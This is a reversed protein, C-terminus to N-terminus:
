PMFFVGGCAYLEGAVWGLMKLIVHLKLPQYEYLLILVFIKLDRIAPLNPLAKSLFFNLKGLIYM